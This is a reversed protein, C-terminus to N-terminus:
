RIRFTTGDYRECRVVEAQLAGRSDSFFVAQTMSRLFRMTETHEDRPGSVCEFMISVQM